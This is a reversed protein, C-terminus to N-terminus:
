LRSLTPGTSINCGQRQHMSIDDPSGILWSLGVFTESRQGAKMVSVQMHVPLPQQLFAGSHMQGAQPVFAGRQTQSLQAQNGPKVQGQQPQHLYAGSSM